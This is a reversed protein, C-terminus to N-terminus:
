HPSEDFWSPHSISKPKKSKSSPGDPLGKTPELAQPMTPPVGDLQDRKSCAYTDGLACGRAYFQRARSSDRGLNPHDAEMLAGGHACAKYSGADCGKEYAWLAAPYDKTWGNGDAYDDGLGACAHQNAGTCTLYDIRTAVRRQGESDGRADAFYPNYSKLWLKNDLRAQQQCAALEGDECGAKAQSFAVVDQHQQWLEWVSPGFGGALAAVLLVGARVWWGVPWNKLFVRSRGVDEGERAYGSRRLIVWVSWGGVAPMVVMPMVFLAAVALWPTALSNAVHILNRALITALLFGSQLLLCIGAANRFETWRGQGVKRYGSGILLRRFGLVFAVYGYLGMLVGCLLFRWERQIADGLAMDHEMLPGATFYTHVFFSTIGMAILLATVGNSRTRTLKLRRLILWLIGWFFATVVILAADPLLWSWGLSERSHLFMSYPVLMGVVVLGGWALRPRREFLVPM